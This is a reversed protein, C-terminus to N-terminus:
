EDRLLTMAMGYVSALAESSQILNILPLMETVMTYLKQDYVISGLDVSRIMLYKDAVSQIVRGAGKDRNDRVMNTIVFPQIKRIEEQLATMAERGNLEEIIQLLESITRVTLENNTDMATNILSQLSSKQSVLQSLRRYVTNRIFAYANQISIPQPILVVVKKDAALFFDLVNYSTGAGLDVVVYDANLRTLNQILKAKQSVHINALSLIDSAGSILRLNELETDLCIEELSDYRKTVFDNLTRPPNKIGMFTHLNAGGLDADVLITKKGMRAFWFAMLISVTSKGVGGKGGGVAVIKPHATMLEEGAIGV